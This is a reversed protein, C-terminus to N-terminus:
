QGLLTKGTAQAPIAETGLFTPQMSKKGVRNGVAQQVPQPAKPMEPLAITPSM